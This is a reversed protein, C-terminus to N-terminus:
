LQSGALATWFKFLEDQTKIKQIIYDKLGEYKRIFDYLPHIYEQLLSATIISSHMYMCVYNDHNTNMSYEYCQSMM